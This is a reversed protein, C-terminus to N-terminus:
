DFLVRLIDISRRTTLERLGLCARSGHDIVGLVPKSSGAPTPLFTLDLAWILNKPVKKPPRNKMERRLRLIAEAQAKVLNAVFTHGVTEVRAANLYCFTRRDQSLRAEADAGQPAAGRPAGM